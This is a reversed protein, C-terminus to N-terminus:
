GMSNSQKHVCWYHLNADVQGTHYTTAAVSGAVTCMQTDCICKVSSVQFKIFAKQDATKAAMCTIRLLITKEGM